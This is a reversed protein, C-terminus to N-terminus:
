TYAHMSADKAKGWIWCVMLAHSWRLMPMLFYLVARRLLTFPVLVSKLSFLLCSVQYFDMYSMQPLHQWDPEQTVYHGSATVVEKPVWKYPYERFTGDEKKLRAIRTETIDELRPGETKIRRLDQLHM